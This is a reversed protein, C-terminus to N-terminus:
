AAKLYQVLQTKNKVESGLYKSLISYKEQIALEIRVHLNDQFKKDPEVVIIKIKKSKIRQRDDYSVFHWEFAGTIMLLHQIQTYALLYNEKIDWQSTWFLRRFHEMSNKPCKIEAGVEACGVSKSYAADPTGGSEDKLPKYVFFVPNDDGMYEIFHNRTEKVYMEYAPFENARGHLISKAEELEPREQMVTVAQMAREEIYTVAGVSWLKNSGAPTLLKYNASSTFKAWRQTHWRDIADIGFYDNM